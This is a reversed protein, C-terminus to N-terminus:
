QSAVGEIRLNARAFDVGLRGDRIVSYVTVRCADRQPDDACEGGRDGSITLGTRRATDLNDNDPVYIRQNQELDGQTTFWRFSIGEREPPLQERDSGAPPPPRFEEASEEDVRARIQFTMGALIPLPEDGSTEVWQEDRATGESPVWDLRDRAKPLDDPDAVRLELGGHEPNQNAQDGGTSLTVEKKAVEVTGSDTTAELRVSVDYGRSCNSTPLRGALDSRQGAEAIAEQISRCLELVQDTTGPYPLTASEGSGLDLLEPDFEMGGDGGDGMSQQDINELPCEYQQEASPQVPCWSWEYSVSTDPPVHDLVTLEAPDGPQLTVPDSRLGLIRYRDLKWYPDFMEGCATLCVVALCVALCYPFIRRM